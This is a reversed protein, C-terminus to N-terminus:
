DRLTVWDKLWVNPAFDNDDYLAQLMEEQQATMLAAPMEEGGGQEWASRWLVALTRAGDALCDITKGGFLQWLRDARGQQATQYADVLDPPPVAAITRKMLEVVAAAAESAAFVIAPGGADGAHYGDLADNVGTVVEPAFKDLMKSEYVTHIADDGPSDPLGHHLRSIHLPQCADAVYHAVIGAATLYRPLDRATAASVMVDYLQGVRFPLSGRHRDEPPQPLTDYFETWGQPTRWRADGSSWLEFLTRCGVPEGGPADMDAFHSPADKKRTARWVLDPVDALAVFRGSPTASPLKGANIDEDTVGIRTLNAELLSALRSGAVGLRCASGAIKYHGVKGWYLSHDAMSDDTVLTIGLTQGVAAITSALVYDSPQGGNPDLVIQGGWQMALPRVVPLRRGRLARTSPGGGDAGGASADAQEDWIWVAGSDGPRSRIAGQNPRPGILLEAIQDVGGISRWRHFLGLVTGELNGSAAAVAKVPCGVLSLGMTDVNLDILDGVMGLGYLQTTWSDLADLEVLGADLSVRARTGAIGPYLSALSRHTASSAVKGIPIMRGARAISVPSGEAGLVHRSTLAYVRSGDTVLAGITGMRRRGQDDVFLSLGPGQMISGIRLQAAMDPEGPYSMETWVVCTPVQRGDPLYLRRPVVDDIQQRSPSEMWDRVFVLVCPWSWKTIGSNSLTRAGPPEPPRAADPDTFRPDGRRILYRGLATGVVNQLNALHVHYADRAAALDHLSLAQFDIGRVFRNM